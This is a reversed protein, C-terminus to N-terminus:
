ASDPVLVPWGPARGESLETLVEPIGELRYRAVETRAKGESVLTVLEELDRHSGVLRGVVDTEVFEDAPLAVGRGRATLVYTGARRLMALAAPVSGQDGLFDIVVNVGRGSTRELVAEIRQRDIQGNEPAAPGGSRWDSFDIVEVEAPVRALVCQLGLRGVADGGLVVLSAGPSFLQLAQRVAHYVALGADALGAVDAPDTASSLRVVSWANTLVLEAMGGDCDIGPVRANDCQMDIGSRCPRCLGCSLQPHLLVVDGPELNTVGSGLDLVRGATEHGLTYPVLAETLGGWRGAILDADIRCVGAGGVEVLVDLPHVVAPAPVDVVEPQVGSRRVRVAKM